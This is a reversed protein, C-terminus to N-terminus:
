KVNREALPWYQSQQLSAVIQNVQLRLESLTGSNIIVHDFIHINEIYIRYLTQAKQLRPKIEKPDLGKANAIEQFRNDNPSERFVFLSRVIGGFVNKVDEVARVDNLIVIPSKGAMIHELITNLAIGYCAGYQIYKLDCQALMDLQRLVEGRDDKHESRDTYKPVMIPDFYKRKEELLYFLTTSKGAGSPGTITIINPM